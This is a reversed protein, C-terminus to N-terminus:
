DGFTFGELDKVTFSSLTDKVDTNIQGSETFKVGRLLDEIGKTIKTEKAAGFISFDTLGKTLFFMAELKMRMELPNERQAQIFANDKNGVDTTVQNYLAEKQTTTLKIGPIIEDQNHIFNKVDELGKKEENKVKNVIEDLKGKELKIIEDLAALADDLDEGSDISRQAMSLAKEQTYGRNIFDQAIVNKRLEENNSDALFDETIGELKEISEMQYSVEDAPAGAQIAADLQKQKESLRSEIEKELAKNIDEMSSIKEKELDLNSLVGKAKFEAALSSYLKETDNQPSSSNSDKENGTATEDTVQNTNEEKTAVSEPAKPEESSNTTEKIEKTEPAPTQENSPQAIVIEDQIGEPSFIDDSTDFTLDGLNLEEM